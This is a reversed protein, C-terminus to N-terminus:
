RKIKKDGAEFAFACVAVLVQEVVDQVSGPLFARALPGAHIGGVEAHRESEHALSHKGTAQRGQDVLAPAHAGSRGHATESGILLKTRFIDAPLRRLDQSTGGVDRL